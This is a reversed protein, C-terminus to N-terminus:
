RQQPSHYAYVDLFFVLKDCSLLNGLYCLHPIYNSLALLLSGKAEGAHMENACPLLHMNAVPWGSWCSHPTLTASFYEAANLEGAGAVFGLGLAHQEQNSIIRHFMSGVCCIEIDM